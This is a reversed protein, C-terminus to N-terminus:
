DGLIASLSARLSVENWDTHDISASSQEILLRGQVQGFWWWMVERIPLDARLLGRDRAAELAASAEEILSQLAIDIAAQLAPRSISAGLVSIQMRRFPARDPHHTARITAIISERLEARTTAAAVMAAFPTALSAIGRRFREAQAAVILGDRSGFGKYLIPTTVGCSECIERIRIASEGGEEIVTIAADLLRDRTSKGAANMVPVTDSRM